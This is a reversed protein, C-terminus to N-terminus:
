RRRSKKRKKKRRYKPTLPKFMRNTMGIISGATGALIGTNVGSWIAGTVDSSSM